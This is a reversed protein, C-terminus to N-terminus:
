PSEAGVSWCRATFRVEEGDVFPEYAAGAVELVAARTADDAERLAQGIPGIRALYRRLDAEPFACPVDVPEVEIRAWGAAALIEGIRGAEAFAFPGPAGPLRPAMEPLLHAAAQAGTTLFPNEEPTRWAIFRLGGGAAIAERLRAFAAAPDTFFMVGFRSVLLDFEGAEFSHAAADALLFRPPNEDYAVREKAAAIMAASIDVGTCTAGPGLRRAIAVTAAGAGCGVDLVRKAGRAAAADALLGEFGVFMRDLVPQMAVWADGGAGNWFDSQEGSM